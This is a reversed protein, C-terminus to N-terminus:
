NGGITVGAIKLTPCAIVGRFELDNGVSQIGRLMDRMNAAIVAEHVPYAAEGNEIWLGSCGYSFQGTTPDFGFGMLKTVWLGRGTERIMQEPSTNGPELFFNTPGITIESDYSRQANGTSTTHARRAAKTDYLFTKLVGKEVVTNRIAAIGEGDFPRSGIRGIMAGDDVISVCDPAIKKGLDNHLFSLGRNVHDGHILSFFDSLFTVGCGPDLIIDARTTKIKKAGLLRVARAVAKASVAEPFDLKQFFRDFSHWGDSVRSGSAEAVPSVYFGALTESYSASSGNSQYIETTISHSSFGAGDCSRIRNDMEFSKKEASRALAIKAEASITQLQPDFLNLDHFKNPIIEPLINADDKDSIKALRVSADVAADVSSVSLDNISAFGIQQGIFARIGLGTFSSQSIKEIERNLITVFFTDGHQVYIEADTAGKRICRQLASEALSAHDNM